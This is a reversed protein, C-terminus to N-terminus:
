QSNPKGVIQIEFVLPSYAPITNGSGKSSYGMSSVFAFRSKEFPTMLSLAKSFGTIASGSGFKIDEIKEAMQIKSPSYTSGSKYIGHVKASDAINTDFVIGNLLRGVYNIYITTDKKLSIDTIGEFLTQKYFGHGTSDVAAMYKKTYRELSDVEWETIDDILERLYIEYVTTSGSGKELYKEEDWDYKDLENLWGPIVVKRYGGEKMGVLAMNIGKNTLEKGTPTVQPGYCMTKDYTGIRKATSEFTTAVYTGDLGYQDYDIYTYAADNNKKTDLMAETLEKGTGPVEDILYVGYGIEKANPHNVSIWAELYKKNGDNKHSVPEKVCSSLMASLACVLIAPLLIRKM